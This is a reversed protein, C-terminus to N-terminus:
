MVEFGVPSRDKPDGNYNITIEEGAAINRLARYIMSARAHEYEANPRYSHNYLSGYGLSIAVTTKTWLYFYKLLTPNKLGGVLSNIPVILVPAHEIVQGKRIPSCAFVGRGKGPVQKICILSSHHPAAKGNAAPPSLLASRTM